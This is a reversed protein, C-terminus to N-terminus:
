NAGYKGDDKCEYLESRAMRTHRPSLGEYRQEMFSARAVCEPNRPNWKRIRDPGVDMLNVPRKVIAEIRRKIEKWDRVYIHRAYAVACEALCFGVQAQGVGCPLLFQRKDCPEGCYDCLEDGELQTQTQRGWM